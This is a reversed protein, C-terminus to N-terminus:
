KTSKIVVINDISIDYTEFSDELDHVRRDWPEWTGYTRRMGPVVATGTSDENRLLTGWFLLTDPISGPFVRKILHPYRLLYDRVHINALRQNFAYRPVLHQRSIGTERSGSVASGEIVDLKLTAFDLIGNPRHRVVTKGAAEDPAPRTDVRRVATDLVVDGRLLLLVDALFTGECMRKIDSNKQWGNRRFAMKLEHAQSVDLMLDDSM